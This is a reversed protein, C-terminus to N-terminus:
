DVEAWLTHEVTRIEKNPYVSLMIYRETSGCWVSKEGGSNSNLSTCADVWKRFETGKLGAARGMVCISMLSFGKGNRTNKVVANYTEFSMSVKVRDITGSSNTSFTVLINGADSPIITEYIDNGNQSIHNISSINVNWYPANSIGGQEFESNLSNYRECFEQVGMDALPVSKAFVNGSSILMYFFLFTTVFCACSINRKM